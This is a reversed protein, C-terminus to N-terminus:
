AVWMKLNKTSVTYSMQRAEIYDDLAKEAEDLTLGNVTAYVDKAYFYNTLDNCGAMECTFM